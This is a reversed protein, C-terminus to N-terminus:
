DRGWCRRRRGVTGLLRGGSGLALMGASFRGGQSKETLLEVRLLMLRIFVDGIGVGLTRVLIQRDGPTLAEGLLLVLLFAARVTTAGNIDGTSLAKLKIILDPAPAYYFDNLRPIM